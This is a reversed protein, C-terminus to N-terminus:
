VSETDHGLYGTRLGSSLIIQKIPLLRTELPSPQKHTNTFSEVRHRDCLLLHKTSKAFCQRQKQRAAKGFPRCGRRQWTVAVPWWSLSYWPTLAITIEYNWMWFRKGSPEVWAADNLGGRFCLMHPFYNSAVSSGDKSLWSYLAINRQSQVMNVTEPSPPWERTGVLLYECALVHVLWVM